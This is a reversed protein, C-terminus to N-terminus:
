ITGQYAKSDVHLAVGEATRLRFRRLVPPAAFARVPTPHATRGLLTSRRSWLGSETRDSGATAGGHRATGGPPRLYASCRSPLSRRVTPLCWSEAACHMVSHALAHLVGVTATPRPVCQPVTVRWPQAHEACSARHAPQDPSSPVDDERPSERHEQCITATARDIAHCWTWIAQPPVPTSCSATLTAPPRTRLGSFTTWLAVPAM